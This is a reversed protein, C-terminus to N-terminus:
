NFNLILQNVNINTVPNQTKYNLFRTFVHLGKEGIDSCSGEISEGAPIIAQFIKVDSNDEKCNICFDNSWSHFNWQLTAPYSTTNQIQILFYEVHIGNQIDHCESKKMFFEIGGEEHFKQWVDNQAFAVSMTAAIIFICIILKM